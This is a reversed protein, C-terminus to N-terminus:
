KIDSITIIKYFIRKNIKKILNRNKEIVEKNKLDLKLIDEISLGYGNKNIFNEITEPNEKYLKRVSALDESSNFFDLHRSVNKEMIM